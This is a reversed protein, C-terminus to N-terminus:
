IAGSIANSNSDIPPLGNKIIYVPWNL